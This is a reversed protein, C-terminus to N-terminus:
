YEMLQQMLKGLDQYENYPQGSQSKVGFPVKNTGPTKRLEKLRNDVTGGLTKIKSAMSKELLIAGQRIKTDKGKAKAIIDPDIISAHFLEMVALKNQDNMKGGKKLVDFEPGFGAWTPWRFGFWKTAPDWTAHEMIMRRATLRFADKQEGKLDKGIHTQLRDILGGVQEKLRADDESRM